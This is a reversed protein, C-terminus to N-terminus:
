SHAASQASRSRAHWGRDGESWRRQKREMEGGGGGGTRFDGDDREKRETETEDRGVPNIKEDAKNETM